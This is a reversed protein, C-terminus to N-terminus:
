KMFRSWITLKLMGYTWRNLSLTANGRAAGGM